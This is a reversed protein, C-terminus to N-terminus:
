KQGRSFFNRRGVKKGKLVVISATLFGLPVEPANIRRHYREM